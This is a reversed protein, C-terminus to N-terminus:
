KHYFFCNMFFQWISHKKTIGMRMDDRNDSWRSAVLTMEVRAGSAHKQLSRMIDTDDRSSRWLSARMDDRSKSCRRAKPSIEKEAFNICNKSKLNRWSGLKAPRPRFSLFTICMKAPCPRFSMFFRANALNKIM